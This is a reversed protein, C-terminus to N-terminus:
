QDHEAKEAEIEARTAPRILDFVSEASDRFYRGNPLYADGSTSVLTYPSNPHVPRFAEIFHVWGCRDVWWEGPQPKLAAQNKISPARPGSKGFGHLDPCEDVWFKATPRIRITCPRSTGVAAPKNRNFM